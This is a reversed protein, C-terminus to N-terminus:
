GARGFRRHVAAPEERVARQEAARQEGAHARRCGIGRVGGHEVAAAGVRRVRGRIGFVQDIGNTQLAVRAAPDLALDLVAHQRLNVAIRVIRPRQQRVQIVRGRRADRRGNVARDTGLTLGAQLGGVIRVADALHEFAGALAAFVAPDDDGELLRDTFNAIPPPEKRVHGALFIPVHLPQFGDRGQAVGGDRLRHGRVNLRDPGFFIARFFGFEDLRELLAVRFVERGHNIGFVGIEARFVVLDDAHPSAEFAAAPLEVLSEGGGQARRVRMAMRRDALAREIERALGDALLVGLALEGAALLEIPLGVQFVAPEHQEDAGIQELGIVARGVTRHAQGFAQGGAPARDGGGVRPEALERALGPFPQRQLRARVRRQRHPHNTPQEVLPGIPGIEERVGVLRRRFGGALRAPAVSRPQDFHAVVAGAREHAGGIDTQARRFGARLFVAGRIRLFEEDHARFAAEDREIRVVFLLRHAAVEEHVDLQGVAPPGFGAQLQEAFGGFGMRDLFPGLDGAHPRRVQDRDNPFERAVGGLARHVDVASGRLM